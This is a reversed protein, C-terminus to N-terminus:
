RRPSPDGTVVYTVCDGIYCAHDSIRELYRLILLASIYCRPEYNRKKTQTIAKKLYNRFISDVSDDMMYLKQSANKDLKELSTVSLQIMEKVTKAMNTVQSKDCDPLPGITDLVEAIDYAYRGFRSFGYSADMFSQISRLDKAVPQYRAILETAFDTVEIQLFRLKESGEFIQSRLMTGKEYSELASNVLDVSLHGMDMILNTIRQLGIDLLRTM